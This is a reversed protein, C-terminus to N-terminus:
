PSPIYIWSYFLQTMPICGNSGLQRGFFCSWDGNGLIGAYEGTSPMIWNNLKLRIPTFHYRM